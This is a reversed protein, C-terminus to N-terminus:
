AELETPDESDLGFNETKDAYLQQLQQLNRSIAKNFYNKMLLGQMRNLPNDNSDKEVVNLRWALQCHQGDTIGLALTAQLHLKGTKLRLDMEVLSPVVIKRMTWEAPIGKRWVMQSSHFEGKKPYEIQLSASDTDNWVTWISWQEFDALLPFIERPQGKILVAKEITWTKPLSLGWLWLLALLVAIVIIFFFLLDM